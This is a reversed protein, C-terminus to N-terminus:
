YRGRSINESAMRTTGAPSDSDRLQQNLSAIRTALETQQNDLLYSRQYQALALETHGQSDNLAALAKWARPHNRDTSCAQELHRRASQLDG